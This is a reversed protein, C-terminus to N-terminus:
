EYLTETLAKTEAQTSAGLNQTPDNLDVSAIKM